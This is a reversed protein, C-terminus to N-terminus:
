RRRQPNREVVINFENPGPKVTFKLGSKRYTTYRPDIPLVNPNDELTQPQVIVQYEGPLAGMGRSNGLEYSGDPELDGSAQVSADAVLQFIVVGATLPKGTEKFTVKGKVPANSPGGCGALGACALAAVLLQGRWWRAAGRPAAPGSLEAQPSMGNVAHWQILQQHIM